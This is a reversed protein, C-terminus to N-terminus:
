WPRISRVVRWLTDVEERAKTAPFRAIVLLRADLVRLGGVAAARVLPVVVKLARVAGAGAPLGFADYSQECWLYTRSAVIAATSPECETSARADPELISLELAFADRAVIADFSLDGPRWPFAEPSLVHLSALRGAPVTTLPDPSELDSIGWGPPLCMGYHLAPNDFYSWAGPCAIGHAPASSAPVGPSPPPDPAADMADRAGQPPPKPTETVSLAAITAGALALAVVVSLVGARVSTRM